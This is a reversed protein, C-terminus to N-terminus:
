ASAGCSGAKLSALTFLLIRRDTQHHSDGSRNRLFKVVSHGPGGSLTPAIKWYAAPRKPPAEATPLHADKDDVVRDIYFRTLASRRPGLDESWVLTQQHYAPLNHFACSM